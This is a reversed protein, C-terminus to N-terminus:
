LVKNKKLKNKIMNFAEHSIEEKLILMTGFYIIPAVTLSIVIIIFINTVLSKILMVSIGMFTVAILYKLLSKTFYEIRLKKIERKIVIAEIIMLFLESIVRAVAAGMYSYKPILMINLIISIGATICQIKFAIKEKKNPLLVQNVQWSGLSTILCLISIICLSYKAEVFELGGFLMMIEEALIFLGVTCPLALFYIYNISKAVIKKYEDYNNKALYATRPVFIIIISDVISIGIGLVTKSRLYYALDKQSITGIFTQDLQTYLAIVLTTMFYVRLEKFYHIIKLNYVKKNIYKKANIYNLINNFSLGFINILAYFIYHEKNKILAFILIISIVKFIINRITIYGYEEIGQYFWDISFINLAIMTTMLLYLKREGQLVPVNFILVVYIIIAIVSLIFQIIILNWFTNSLEKRDDRNKAIERIGYRPIGFAAFLVFWTVISSAYNVKGINEAGLVYSIYPATILPFTMNVVTFILNYIYNKKMSKM